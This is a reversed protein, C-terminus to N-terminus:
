RRSDLWARADRRTADWSGTAGEFSAVAREVSARARTRDTPWLERGLAFQAAALHGRDLTGKAKEFSAIAREIDPIAKAHKGVEAYILGRTLYAVAVQPHDEGYTTVLVPVLKEALGLAEPLKGLESLAVARPQWCDALQASDDDSAYTIIECAKTLKPEAEGFRELDNLIGGVMVLTAAYRLSREGNIRRVSDLASTAEALAAEPKGARQLIDALNAHSLARDLNNADLIRDAILTSRRAETEAEATNGVAALTSSLRERFTIETGPNATGESALAKRYMAVAEAYDGKDELMYGLGQVVMPVLQPASTEALALARRFAAEADASRHANTLAAGRVYDLMVVLDPKRGIREVAAEAYTAYELGREPDGGEFATTQVLQIWVNAAIYDHHAREAVAAAERLTVVAKQTDGGQMESTGLLYMAEAHLPPWVKAEATITAAAALARKFEGRERDAEADFARYRIATVKRRLEPDAPVRTLLLGPAPNKCGSPDGIVAGIRTAFRVHTPGDILLDDVLGAIEVRRADLCATTAPPQIPSTAASCTAAHTTRWAVAYTDLQTVLVNAARPDGALAAHLQVARPPNWAADLAVLSRACPDEAPESALLQSAAVGGTGVLVLAAVAGAAVVHGRRHRRTAALARVFAHMDAHRDSRDIALGRELITVLRAPVTAGRPPQPPTRMAARIEDVSTGVFPREGFVLEWASVAFAFVDARGDLTGGDLQEPAMYAPTGVTTGTATLHPDSRAHRAPEVREVTDTAVGFDTVLVRKVTDGALEVLVNEPKFDRHVIGADHAAALGQGARELLAVLERWGPTVRRAYSGLTEGRILEMAIFVADDSRGVDYVTIVSPHALKAMLRSERVLREALVGAMAALEPKIVKLAVERDLEGDYATYVHGMGGAGLLERIEYRGVRTGLVPAGARRPRGPDLTPTGYAVLTPPNSSVGARVAAIVIQRCAACDDLHSNVIAADTEALAREVHAGLVDDTPCPTM